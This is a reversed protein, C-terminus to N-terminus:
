SYGHPIIAFSRAAVAGADVKESVCRAALIDSRGNQAVHMFAGTGWTTMPSALLDLLEITSNNQLLHLSM